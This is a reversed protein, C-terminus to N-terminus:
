LGRLAYRVSSRSYAYGDPTHTMGLATLEGMVWQAAADKTRTVRIANRAMNHLGEDNGFWLSVNWSARSPHGNYTKGM